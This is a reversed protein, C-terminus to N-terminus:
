IGPCRHNCIMYLILSGLETNSSKKVKHYCLLRRVTDINGMCKNWCSTTTDLLRKCPPSTGKLRVDYDHEVWLRIWLNVTHHEIM